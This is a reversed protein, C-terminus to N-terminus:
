AALLGKVYRVCRQIFSPKPRAANRAQRRRERDRDQHEAEIRKAEVADELEQKRIWRRACRTLRYGIDRHENCGRPTRNGAKYHKRHCANISGVAAM